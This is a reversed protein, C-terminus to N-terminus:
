IRGANPPPHLFDPLPSSHPPNQHGAWGTFMEPTIRDSNGHSWSNGRITFTFACVYLLCEQWGSLILCCKLCCWELLSILAGLNAKKRECGRESHSYHSCFIFGWANRLIIKFKQTATALFFILATSFVWFWQTCFPENFWALGLLLNYGAYSNFLWKMKIM